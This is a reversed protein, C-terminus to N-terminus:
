WWSRLFMLKDELPKPFSAILLASLWIDLDGKMRLISLLSKRPPESLGREGHVITLCVGHFVYAVEVLSHSHM